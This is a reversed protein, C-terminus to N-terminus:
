PSKERGEAHRLYLVSVVVSWFFLIVATYVAVSVVGGEIPVWGLADPRVILLLLFIAFPGSVLASYLAASPRGRASATKSPTASM